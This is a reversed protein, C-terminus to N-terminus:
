QTGGFVKPPGPNIALVVASLNFAEQAIEQRFVVREAVEDIPKEAYGYQAGGDIKNGSDAVRQWERRIATVDELRTVTVVFRVTAAGM